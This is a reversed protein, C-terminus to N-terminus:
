EYYTRIRIDQYTCPVQNYDAMRSKCNNYTFTSISQNFIFGKGHIAIETEIKPSIKVEIEELRNVFWLRIAYACILLAVVDLGTTTCGDDKPTFTAEGVLL